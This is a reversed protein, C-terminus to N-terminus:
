GAPVNQGPIPHGKEGRAVFTGFALFCALAGLVLLVPWRALGWDVDGIHGRITWRLGVLGPLFLVFGLVLLPGGFVQPWRATLAIMVVDVVLVGAVALLYALLHGDLQMPRAGQNRRLQDVCKSCLRVRGADEEDTYWYQECRPCRIEIM